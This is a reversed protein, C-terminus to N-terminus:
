KKIFFSALWSVVSVTLAGWFAGAFSSIEVGFVFQSALWFLVANIVFTGLGLTLINMPLSFILIIPRIVANVLGTTSLIQVMAGGIIVWSMFHPLTAVTQVLRRFLPQGVQHILLAFVLSAFQGFVIKGSAILLTNRVILGMAPARLMDRFIDLGVFPSGRVGKFPNYDVFALSIGWLPYFHFLALLVAAPILMLYLIWHQRWVVRFPRRREKTAGRTLPSLIGTAPHNVNM